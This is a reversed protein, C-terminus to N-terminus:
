LPKETIPSGGSSADYISFGAGSQGNVIWGKAYYYWNWVYASYDGSQAADSRGAGIGSSSWGEPITDNGQFIWSEFGANPIQAQMMLASLFFSFTLLYKKM